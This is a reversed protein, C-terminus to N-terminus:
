RRLLVREVAMVVREAEERTMESSMPLALAEAALHETVQLDLRLGADLETHHLVPAYYAKTQVGLRELGAAVATRDAAGGTTFRAVWHVYAHRGNSRPRQPIVGGWRAAATAYVEAIEERREVLEDLVDLQDLAAVAHVEHLLSSRLWNPGRELDAGAPVVVAGGAGGSSIVKAFSMSFAHADAQTGVPMGDYEAGLSPASDAVLPVRHRACVRRLAAYDAPNGLADVCVVLDGGHGSLSRDVAAPDITWHDPDVDVFRIAYGLQRLVEGSAVFTYSPLLATAGPRAPGATALIALRLAATGSATVIVRHSADVKLRESLEDQLRLSWPGGHKVVGSWQAQQQRDVVADPREPRPPIVVPL